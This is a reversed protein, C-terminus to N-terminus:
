LLRLREGNEPVDIQGSFGAKEIARKLSFLQSRHGHVLLLRAPNVALVADILQRRPAHNPLLFHAIQARVEQKGLRFQPVKSAKSAKLLKGAVSKPYARNLLIVTAEPKEVVGQLLRGAPTGRGFQEGPAVVAEGALLARACGREGVFRLRSLDEARGAAKFAIRTIEELAEHVLHAVGADLLGAVVEAGCGLRAVGVLAPRGAARGVVECLGAMQAAYDVADQAKQTALVGEMLMIDIPFDASGRPFLAGSRLVQDHGCFDGTYLIRFPRAGGQDVELLLLEAGAIHGAPFSMARFKVREGSDAGSSATPMSFRLPDFYERSVITNLQTALAADRARGRKLAVKALQRTSPACFCPLRPFRAKLASLGGLHDWHAHSIWCADPAEIKQVWEPAPPTKAKGPERAGADLLIRRGGAAILYANAGIESAGSLAEFTVQKM